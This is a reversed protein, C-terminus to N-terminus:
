SKTSSVRLTDFLQVTYFSKYLYEIDMVEWAKTQFKETLEFRPSSDSLPFNSFSFAQHLKFDTELKRVDPDSNFPFFNIFNPAEHSKLEQGGARIGKFNWPSSLIHFKPTRIELYTINNLM